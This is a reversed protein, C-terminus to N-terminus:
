EKLKFFYRLLMGAGAAILIIIILYDFLTMGVMRISISMIISVLILLGGIGSLIKAWLSKPNFFMWILGAILPIMILGSSINLGWLSFSGWGSFVLTKKSLIFLGVILLVAGVVFFLPDREKKPEDKKINDVIEQITDQKKEDKM